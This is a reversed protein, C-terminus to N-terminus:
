VINFTSVSTACLAIVGQMGTLALVDTKLATVHAHGVTSHLHATAFLQLMFPSRFAQMTDLNDMDEFLFSFDRLLATALVKPETDSNRAFFDIMIALGTSGFNSRWEALRQTAQTLNYSNTIAIFVILTRGVVGFVCGQTTVKYRIDSYVVDFICQLAEVLSADTFQWPDDQSGAWLYLTPLFNKSWRQDQCQPPLHHNRYTSRSQYRKEIWYGPPATLTPAPM